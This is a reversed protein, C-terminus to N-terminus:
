KLIEWGHGNRTLKGAQELENTYNIATAKSRDISRAIESYSALPHDTLYTLVGNMLESKTAKKQGNLVDLNGHKGTLQGSEQGTSSRDVQGGSSGRANIKAMREEHKLRLELLEKQRDFEAQEAELKAQRDKEEQELEQQRTDIVAQKAEAKRIDGALAIAIYVITTLFPSAVGLGRVLDTFAEGSFYVVLAVGITYVPILIAMLYFKVPKVLGNDSANYLDLAVHTSVIGVTEFGLAVTIAFIFALWEGADSKFVNFISYSTFLAPMLAVTYPGLKILFSVIMASIADLTNDFAVTLQKM